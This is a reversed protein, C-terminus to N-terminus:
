GPENGSESAEYADLFAKYYDELLEQEEGSKKSYKLEAESVITLKRRKSEGVAYTVRYTSSRSHKVFGCHKCVLIIKGGRKEPVLLSGCRECFEM